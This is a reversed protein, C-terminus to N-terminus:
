LSSRPPFIRRTKKHPAAIGRPEQGKQGQSDRGVIITQFVIEFRFSTFNKSSRLM